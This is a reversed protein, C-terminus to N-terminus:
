NILGRKIFFVTRYHLYYKLTNEFDKSFYASSFNEVKELIKNKTAFRVSVKQTGKTNGFFANQM